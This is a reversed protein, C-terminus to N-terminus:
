RCRGIEASGPDHCVLCPRPNRRLQSACGALFGAPHPDFGAGIGRGGHCVVCDREIHCSVCANLNRMAEFAHHGARRPADSWIAPPPHFRGAERVGPPGSMSVGLRQHCTLCFSQERHCSTCKSTALRAEVAHMSLYDAPHLNRPRVRGDHCATCSEEKHCSACFQSDNAAVFKHRAVFDPGHAANRMWAPPLLKGTPFATRIRGGETTGGALHCTECEGKATGRAAPDPHQHCSLCGRMRPLQDRTALGVRQVEGHCQRCGINRAAHKQHDFRLNPPPISFRAVRNGDGERWGLHCTGCAGLADPGAAVRNPDAHSSGHCGDCTAGGPTLVDSAARSTKGGPHCTTCAVGLKGTHVEHDFRITLSQPPYIAVSPGRDDPPAGPPLVDAGATPATPPAKPGDALAVGVAGLLALVFLWFRAFRSM